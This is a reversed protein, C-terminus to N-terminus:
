NEAFSITHHRGSQALRDGLATRAAAGGQRLAELENAPILTVAVMSVPSLPMDAIRTPFTAPVGLLVGVCDDATVYHPPVQTSIAHSQSVGPLEMSLIGYQELQGVIGGAGAVTGAVHSVLEFAWSKSLHSADGPQGAHDPLIDTTEVFLEMGFGNGDLQPDDFPDSMGDTAIIITDPRRIVRYAQRTTPWGPGGMLQPSILHGLVDNEVAGIAAWYDDRRAYSQSAAADSGTDSASRPKAGTEGHTQGGFLKKLKDLFSM